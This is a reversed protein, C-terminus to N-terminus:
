KNNNNDDDNYFNSVTIRHEYILKPNKVTKTTTANILMLPKVHFKEIKLEWQLLLNDRMIKGVEILNLNDLKNEHLFM